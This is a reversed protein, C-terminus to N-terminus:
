KYTVTAGRRKATEILSAISDIDFDLSLTGEYIGYGHDSDGYRSVHLTNIDGSIECYPHLWDSYNFPEAFMFACTANHKETAIKFAEASNEAPVFEDVVGNKGHVRVPYVNIVM